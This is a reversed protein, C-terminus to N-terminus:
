TLGRAVLPNIYVSDAVTDLFPYMFNDWDIKKATQSTMTYSAGTEIRTHGYADAIEIETNVTVKKVRPDKFLEKFIETSDRKASRMYMEEDLYAKEPLTVQVNGDEVYVEKADIRWPLMHEVDDTDLTDNNPSTDKPGDDNPPILVLFLFLAIFGYLIYGAIRVFMNRHNLMPLKISM